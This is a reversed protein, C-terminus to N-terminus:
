VRLVAPTLLQADLRDRLWADIWSSPVYLEMAHVALAQEMTKVRDFNSMSAATWTANYGRGDRTIAAIGRLGTASASALYILTTSARHETGPLMKPAQEAELLTPHTSWAGLWRAGSANRDVEAIPVGTDVVRIM